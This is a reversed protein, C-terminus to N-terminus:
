RKRFLNGADPISIWIFYFSSGIYLVHIYLLDFSYSNILLHQCATTETSKMNMKETIKYSKKWM